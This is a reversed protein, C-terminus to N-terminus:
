ILLRRLRMSEREHAERLSRSISPRWSQDHRGQASPLMPAVFPPGGHRDSPSGCGRPCKGSTTRTTPARPYDYEPQKRGRRQRPGLGGVPVLGGLRPRRQARLSLDHWSGGGDRLLEGYGSRREQVLRVGASRREGRWCRPVPHPRDLQVPQEHQSQEPTWAINALGTFVLQPTLSYDVAGGLFIRGYKDYSPSSRLVLGETSGVLFSTIYDIGGTQIDTWGAMYGFGSNIPRYARLDAGNNILHQAPTGPTFMVRAQMNLPGIRYGVITDALFASIDNTRKGAGCPTGAAAATSPPCSPLGTLPNIFGTTQGPGPQRYSEASGTQYYFTPQLSFGGVTWRVDGGITYRNSDLPSGPIALVNLNPFTGGGSTSVGSPCQNPQYGAYAYSGLNNTGCNGGRISAYALTPKITLGRLIDAELSVAAAYNNNAGPAQVPDLKASVMVYSLTTRIDPTWNTRLTLGPGDGSSLIGTKYDTGRWPQAGVMIMSQFPIWPLFSGEGTAPTEIYLWKTEVASAVDTDLDMNATTGSFVQGNIGGNFANSGNILGAGNTFDLEVAWVGSTRGVQGTITFVGRERSVYGHDRAQTPDAVLLGNTGTGGSWNRYATISFDVLGNITVKPAPAPAPAQAFAPPALMGLAAIFFLVAGVKRM